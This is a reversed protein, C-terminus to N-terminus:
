CRGDLASALGACTSFSWTGSGFADRTGDVYVEAAGEPTVRVYSVIPDGETTLQHVTVEAGAGSRWAKRLCTLESGGARRPAMGQEVVVEGCSDLRARDAWQQQVPDAAVPRSCGTVGVGMMCAVGVSLAITGVEM